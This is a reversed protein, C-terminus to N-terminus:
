VAGSGGGVQIVIDYRGDRTPYQAPSFEGDATFRVLEEYRGGDLNAPRYVGDGCLVTGEGADTKVTKASRVLEAADETNFHTRLAEEYRALLAEVDVRNLIYDARVRLDTIDEAELVQKAASIRLQALPLETVRETDTVQPLVPVEGPTGTKLCCRIERADLDLRLVVLDLRALTAHAAEATLTLPVTNFYTYGNIVACGAQVDASLGGSVSPLVLLAGEATVGNSVFAAREAAFDEASYVRDPVGDTIVANFPFSKEM